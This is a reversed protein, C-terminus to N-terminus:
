SRKSTPLGDPFRDPVLNLQVGHELLAKAGALLFSFGETSDVLLKAIEAPSGRFGSNTIRVFTTGDPRATFVWEVDTPYGYGSWEVVIRENPEIVKVKATSSFDYWQWDWQVTKGAELKGSGHSFWIKSTIAPDVFAEFVKAVPSRILMEARAALEQSSM